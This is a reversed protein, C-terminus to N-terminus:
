FLNRLLCFCLSIENEWRDSRQYSSRPFCLSRTRLEGFGRQRLSNERCVIDIFFSLVSNIKQEKKNKVLKTSDAPPGSSKRSCNDRSRVLRGLCNDCVISLPVFGFFFKGRALLKKRLKSNPIQSAFKRHEAAFGFEYLCAQMGTKRFFRCGSLFSDLALFCYNVSM